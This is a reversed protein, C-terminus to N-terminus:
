IGGVAWGWDQVSRSGERVAEWVVISSRKREDVRRFSNSNVLSGYKSSGDKVVGGWNIVIAPEGSIEFVGTELSGFEQEKCQLEM